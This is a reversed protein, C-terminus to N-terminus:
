PEQDDRLHPSGPGAGVHAKAIHQLCAEETTFRSDDDVSPKYGRHAVCIRCLFGVLQRQGYVKVPIPTTWPIAPAMAELRKLLSRSM